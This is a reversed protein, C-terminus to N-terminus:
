GVDEFPDPAGEPQVTMSHTGRVYLLDDRGDIEDIGMSIHTVKPFSAMFFTRIEARSQATPHNPPMFVADMTYLQALAEFNGDLMLKGFRDITARVAALVDAPLNAPAPRTM